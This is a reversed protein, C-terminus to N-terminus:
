EGSWWFVAWVFVEANGGSYCPAFCGRTGLQDSSLDMTIWRQQEAPNAAEIRGEEVREGYDGHCLLSASDM